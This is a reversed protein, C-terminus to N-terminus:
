PPRTLPPLPPPRAPLQPHSLQRPAQEVLAAEQDPRHVPLILLELTQRDTHTGIFPTPLLNQPQQVVCLLADSRDRPRALLKLPQQIPEDRTAPLAAGEAALVLTHKDRDTVPLLSPRIRQQAPVHRPTGM